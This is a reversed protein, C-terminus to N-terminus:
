KPGEGYDYDSRKHGCLVRNDAVIGIGHAEAAYCFGLDEGRRVGSKTENYVFWPPDMKDFVRKDLLVCAFGGGKVQTRTGLSEIEGNYKYRNDANFSVGTRYVCSAKKKTNRIPVFGMCIDVEPDLMNKLADKPVMVDSDVFWVKDAGGKLAKRVLENREIGVDHGKVYVWDVEVDDPLGEQHTIRYLVELDFVSPDMPIPICATVKMKGREFIDAKFPSAPM